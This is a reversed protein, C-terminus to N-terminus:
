IEEYADRYADWQERKRLDDEDFKWNKKTTSASRRLASPRSRASIHLFFKLVTTGEEVLMREFDNIHDYRPRWVKKPRARRRAGVLVDEYHSRNFIGIM